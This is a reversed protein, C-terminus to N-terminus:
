FGGQKGQAGHEVARLPLLAITKPPEAFFLDESEWWAGEKSVPRGGHACCRGGDACSRAAGLISSHAQCEINECRSLGTATAALKM